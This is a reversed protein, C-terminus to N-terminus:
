PPNHALIVDIGREEILKIARLAMMPVSLAFYLYQPGIYPLRHVKIGYVEEELPVDVTSAVHAVSKPHHLLLDVEHGREVLNKATQYTRVTAGGQYPFFCRSMQLIKM